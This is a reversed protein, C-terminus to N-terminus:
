ESVRVLCRGFMSIGGGENALNRNIDLQGELNLRSETLRLGGGFNNHFVNYGSFTASVRFM